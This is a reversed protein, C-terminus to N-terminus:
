LERVLEALAQLRVREDEDKVRLVMSELEQLVVLKRSKRRLAPMWPGVDIVESM